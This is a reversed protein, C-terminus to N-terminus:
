HRKGTMTVWPCPRRWPFPGRWVHHMSPRVMCPWKRHPMPAHSRRRPHPHRRRPCPYRCSPHAQLFPGRSKKDRHMSINGDARGHRHRRRHPSRHHTIPSPHTTIPSAVTKPPPAAKALKARYEDEKGREVYGGLEAHWYFQMAEGMHMQRGPPPRVRDLYARTWLLMPELLSAQEPLPRPWPGRRWELTLWSHPVAAMDENDSSM